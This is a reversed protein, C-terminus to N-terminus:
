IEVDVNISGRITYYDMSLFRDVLFLFHIGLM